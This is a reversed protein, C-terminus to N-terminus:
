STPSGPCHQTPMIPTADPKSILRPKTSRPWYSWGRGGEERRGVADRVADEVSPYRGTAVAEHMFAEEDPTLEVEIAKLSIRTHLGTLM